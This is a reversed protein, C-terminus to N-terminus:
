LIIPILVSQNYNPHLYNCQVAIMTFFTSLKHLLVGTMKLLLGETAVTLWALHWATFLDNKNVINNFSQYM